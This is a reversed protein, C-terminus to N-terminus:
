SDSYFHNVQLLRYYFRQPDRMYVLAHYEQPTRLFLDDFYLDDIAGNEMLIYKYNYLGEKIITSTEWRDIEPNHELRQRSRISWNNFDGVLYIDQDDEIETGPEFRFVVNAYRGNLNLNPKGYRTSPTMRGTSSFGSIDDMLVLRPPVEHPAAEFVQPNNQSLEDLTLELFEYDGIFSNERRLEFQVELPDSFDLEDAERSKGWFQNQVYYFELDFQPQDVFDPLRFRSVPRHTIRFDRRPTTIVEVSSRISGRNETVFFPITFVLYGTDQDEVRMMYNGSRRFDLQNNPFRFTYQRYQPRQQSVQGGDLFHTQLGDIYFEPPIPSRSWDPNHHTFSIRFQRSDFELMEFTLLLRQNGDMEIIPPSTPSGTRHLQISRVLDSAIMQGPVTFLNEPTQIQPLSDRETRNNSEFVSCGTSIFLLGLFLTSFFTSKSSNLRFFNCIINAKSSM